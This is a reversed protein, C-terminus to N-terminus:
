LAALTSVEPTPRRRVKLLTGEAVAAWPEDTIQESAVLVARRRRTWPTDIVAGTERSVRQSVVEDSPQRTLVHLTRGQRFAYLADGNSLLFNSAGFGPRGGIERVAAVVAADAHPTDSPPAPHSLSAHTADARDLHTLVFAFFVESDTSGKVEALREASSHARLYGVDDITGNHAFVWRGREFPHTNELSIPGVTRRRVHAVLVEGRTRGATATFHPDEGACVPQKTTGWGRHPDYVAIGWGHPHERSLLGLSRPAEKLCFRFEATEDAVIGIM